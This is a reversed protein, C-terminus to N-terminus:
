ARGNYVPVNDPVQDLLATTLEELAARQAKRLTNLVATVEFTVVGDVTSAEVLLTVPYLDDRCEDLDFVPVTVVIEDPILSGAAATVQQQIRKDVAERGKAMVSNSEGDTAVKLTRFTEVVADDVHGNLTARLFRILARQTFEATKVLESVARFAPHQPLLVTHRWRIASGRHGEMDLEATIGAPSVYIAADAEYDTLDATTHRLLDETAYLTVGNPPRVSHEEELSGDEHRTYYRGTVDFDPAKIVPQAKTVLQEIKTIAEAEHM